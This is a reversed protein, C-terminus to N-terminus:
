NISKTSGGSGKFIKRSEEELGRRREGDWIKLRDVIEFIVVKFGTLGGTRSATWPCSLKTQQRKRNHLKMM